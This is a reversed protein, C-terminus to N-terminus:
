QSLFHLPFFSSLCLEYFFCAVTSADPKKDGYKRQRRRDTQRERQGDEERMEERERM